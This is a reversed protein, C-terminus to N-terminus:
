LSLDKKIFSGIAVAYLIIGALLLIGIGIFGNAEGNIIATPQYLTIPTAYKIVEAKESAQSLMKLLLFAICAGMGIGNALKAENFICATAFCLGSFFVLLCFLGLNILLFKGIELQGSFMIASTVIGVVIM